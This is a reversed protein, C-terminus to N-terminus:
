GFCSPLYALLAWSINIDQSLSSNRTKQVQRLMHETKKAIRLLFAQIQKHFLLKGKTVSEQKYKRILLCFIPM